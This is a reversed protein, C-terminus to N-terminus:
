PFDSLRPVEKSKAAVDDAFKRVSPHYHKRLSAFEWTMSDDAGAYSPNRAWPDFTKTEDGARKHSWGKKTEVKVQEKDADHFEEDSTEDEEGPEGQNYTVGGVTSVQGSKSSMSQDIIGRLLRKERM